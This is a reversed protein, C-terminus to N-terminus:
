TLLFRRQLPDRRGCGNAAASSLGRPRLSHVAQSRAVPIAQGRSGLGARHLPSREAGLGAQWLLSLGALRWCANGVAKGARTLPCPLIPDGSGWSRPSAEWFLGEKRYGPRQRLGQLFIYTELASPAGPFELQGWAGPGPWLWSAQPGPTVGPWRKRTAGTAARPSCHTNPPSSDPCFRSAHLSAPPRGRTLERQWSGPSGELGSSEGREPLRHVGLGPESGPSSDQSPWGRQLFQGAARPM